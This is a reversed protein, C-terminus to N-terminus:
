TTLWEIMNGNLQVKGTSQLEAIIRGAEVFDGVEAVLEEVTRCQKWNEAGVDPIDIIPEAGEVILRNSGRASLRDIDAPVAKVDKGLSLAFDATVLAGSKEPAEVVILFDSLAAILMNRERFFAKRPPVQHAYWTVVLGQSEILKRLELTARPYHAGLGHGLVGITLGGVSLAGEHAKEDIGFALGSVVVYGLSAYYRALDYAVKAGYPSPHRTGVLGVTKQLAFRIGKAYIPRSVSARLLRGGFWPDDPQLEFVTM